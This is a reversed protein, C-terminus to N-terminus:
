VDVLLCGGRGVEGVKGTEWGFGGGGWGELHTESEGSGDGDEASSSERLGGELVDLDGVERGLLGLGVAGEQGDVELEVTALALAQGAGGVGGGGQGLRVGGAGVLGVHEGDVLSGRGLEGHLDGM